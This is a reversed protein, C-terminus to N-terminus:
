LSTRYLYFIYNSAAKPFGNQQHIINTSFTYQRININSITHQYKWLCKSFNGVICKTPLFQKAQKRFYLCVIEDVYALMCKRGVDEVLLMYQRLCRDGVDIYGTNLTSRTKLNYSKCNKINSWKISLAATHLVYQSLFLTMWFGINNM